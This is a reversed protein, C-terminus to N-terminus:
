FVDGLVEQWLGEPGTVGEGWPTQADVPGSQILLLPSSWPRFKSKRQSGAAAGAMRSEIERKRQLIFASKRRCHKIKDTMRKKRKKKKIPHTSHPHPNEAEKKWFYETNLLPCLQKPNWPSSLASDAAQQSEWNKLFYILWRERSDNLPCPRRSTPSTVPLGWRSKDPLM